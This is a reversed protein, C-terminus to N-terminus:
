LHIKSVSELSVDLKSIYNEKQFYNELAEEFDQLSEADQPLLFGTEFRKLPTFRSWFIVEARVGTKVNM